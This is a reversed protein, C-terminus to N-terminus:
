ACGLAARLKVLSRKVGASLESMSASYLDWENGYSAGTQPLGAGYTSEFDQFFDLQNSVYVQRSANSKSQAASIFDDTLTKLDDWSLKPTKRLGLLWLPVFYAIGTAMQITAVTWPYDLVNLAQKNYINYAIYFLFWLDFYM